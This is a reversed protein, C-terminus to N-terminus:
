QQRISMQVFEGDDTFEFVKFIREVQPSLHALLRDSANTERRVVIGITIYWASEEHRVEELRFDRGDEYYEQAMAKALAIAQRAEIASM